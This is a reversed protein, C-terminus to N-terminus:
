VGLNTVIRRIGGDRTVVIDNGIQKICLGIRKFMHCSPTYKRKESKSKLLMFMHVYALFAFVKLYFLFQSANDIYILKM